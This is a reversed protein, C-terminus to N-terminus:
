TAHGSDNAQPQPQLSTDPQPTARILAARLQSILRASGAVSLGVYTEARIRLIRWGVRYWWVELEQSGGHGTWRFLRRAGLGRLAETLAARHVDIDERILLTAM